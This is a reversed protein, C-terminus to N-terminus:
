SKNENQNQNKAVNPKRNNRNRNNRNKSYNNNRNKANSRPTNKNEGQNNQDQKKRNDPKSSTNRRDSNNNNNRNDPRRQNNRKNSDGRQNGQNDSSANRQNPRRGGNKGQPRRKGGKPKKPTDFRTISDEIVDTYEKVVPATEATYDILDKPKKNDKNMKLILQVREVPVPTMTTAGEQEYSYWMLNRFVDKKQLYATGKETELPENDPLNEQMEAYCDAEYALCCKLKGCQGALKQPNLSIEQCRAENITVTSFKSKWSCCCLERGCSGIGGLRGAEQRAGIQRMEIRIKFREALVKILQRFDVREDAIYYFIAKTKDGQYEVDGIKMDLNLDKAIERTKLMVEKELSIADKWKLIDNQKAKRYIKKFETNPDIKNKQLQILVTQGTLTVIGIDHGPSAEVAVIDGKNLILNNVNYFYEKRTNSFRVEVVGTTTVNDQIKDLWNYVDLKGSTRKPYLFNDSGCSCGSCSDPTIDQNQDNINEM